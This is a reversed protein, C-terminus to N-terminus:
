NDILNAHAQKKSHLYAFECVAKSFTIGGGEQQLSRIYGPDLALNKLSENDFVYVKSTDFPTKILGYFQSYILGDTSEKGHPSTFLTQGDPNLIEQTQAYTELCYKRWLFVEVEHHDPIQDYPLASDKSTVQKALDIFTRCCEEWCGYVSTLSADMHKLKTKKANMFLTAGTFRGLLQERASEKRALREASVATSDLKAVYVSAPYHQLINSYRITKKLAPSLVADYWLQQDQHSLYTSHEDYGSELNLTPFFIYIFLSEIGLVSNETLDGRCNYTPVKLGFHINAYNIGQQTVGLSNPFSCISDIDFTIEASRNKKSVSHHQSLCLNRPLNEDRSGIGRPFASTTTDEFASQCNLSHLDVPKMLKPSSLVDPLPTGGDHEGRLITTIQQVSSCKSHVDPRQHHEQHLRDAEDHQKHTYGQFGRLQKALKFATQKSPAPSALASTTDAQTPSTVASIPTTNPHGAAPTTNTTFQTPNTAATRTISHSPSSSTTNSPKQMASQSPTSSTSLRELLPTMWSLLNNRQAPFSSGRRSSGRRSNGRHLPPVSPSSHQDLTQPPSRGASRGASRSSPYSNCMNDGASTDEVRGGSRMQLLIEATRTDMKDLRQSLKAEYEDRENNSEQENAQIQGIQRAIEAGEDTTHLEAPPARNPRPAQLNNCRQTRGEQPISVDVSTRLGIEPPTETPVDAHLPPEYAIFDALGQSQCQQLSRQQNSEKKAQIAAAPTSHKRPRGGPM